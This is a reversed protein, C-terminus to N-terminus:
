KRGSSPAPPDPRWVLVPTSRRNPCFLSEDRATHRGQGQGQRRIRKAAQREREAEAKEAEAREAQVAQVPGPRGPPPPPPGPRPRLSREVEEPLEQISGALILGNNEVLGLEVRNVAARAQLIANWDEEAAAQLEEAIDSGMDRLRAQGPALLISGLGTETQTELFVVSALGLLALNALACLLIKARLSM